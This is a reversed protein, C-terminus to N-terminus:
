LLPNPICERVNELLGGAGYNKGSTTKGLFFSFNFNFAFWFRIHDNKTSVLIKNFIVNLQFCVEKGNLRIDSSKSAYHAAYVRQETATVEVVIYLLYLLVALLFQFKM